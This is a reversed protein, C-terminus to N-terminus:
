ARFYARNVSHASGIDAKWWSDQIAKPTSYDNLTMRRHCLLPFSRLRWHTASYPNTESAEIFIPEIRYRWRRCRFIIRDQAGPFM